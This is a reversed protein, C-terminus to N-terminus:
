FVILLSLDLLNPLFERVHSGVFKYQLMIEVAMLPVLVNNVSPTELLKLLQEMNLRVYEVVYVIGKRIEKSEVFSNYEQLSINSAIPFPLCSDVSLSSRYL